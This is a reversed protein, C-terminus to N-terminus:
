NGGLRSNKRCLDFNVFRGMGAMRISCGHQLVFQILIMMNVVTYLVHIASAGTQALDNRLKINLTSICCFLHSRQGGVPLSSWMAAFIRRWCDM